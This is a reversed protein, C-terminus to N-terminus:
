YDTVINLKSTNVPTGGNNERKLEENEIKYICWRDMSLSEISPAFNSFIIIHPIEFVCIGGEYKGSYLCGNKLQEISSYNVYEMSERPIDLIIIKPSTEKEKIFTLVQNYVDLRKGEGIIVDQTCILYKALYSKGTNGVPEYLWYIQRKSPPNKIINLVEEQWKYWKVNTYENKLVMDKIPLSINMNTIFNNDKSCYKINQQKSGKAKEWHINKNIAKVTNFSIANPAYIFGQLHPTGEKGIEKGIIYEYTKFSQTLTDIDKEIYNNLTFCWGRGRVRTTSTNGVRTDVTDHTM